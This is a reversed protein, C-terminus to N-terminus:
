ERAIEKFREEQRALAKVPDEFLLDQDTDMKSSM